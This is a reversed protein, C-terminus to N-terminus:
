VYVYASVYYSIYVIIICPNVKPWTLFLEIAKSKDQAHQM